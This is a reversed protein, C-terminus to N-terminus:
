QDIFTFLVNSLDTWCTDLTSSINKQFKVQILLNFTVNSKTTFFRTKSIQNDFSGMDVFNTAQYVKVVGRPILIILINYLSINYYIIINSYRRYHYKSNLNIYVAAARSYLATYILTEPTKLDIICSLYLNV